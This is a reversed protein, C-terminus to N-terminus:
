LTTHRVQGPNHGAGETTSLPVVLVNKNLMIRMIDIAGSPVIVDNNTYIVYKYGMQLASRCFHSLITEHFNLFLTLVIFM